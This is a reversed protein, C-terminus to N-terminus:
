RAPVKPAMQGSLKVILQELVLRARSGSSSTSKLALDADLLWGFIKKARQRTIQQLQRSTKELVFPKPAVGAERLADSLSIRRRQAEAIEVIRAAAAMRRLSGSMMALLAVPEEGALLLRDLELLAAAAKGDLAFEITVWATKARWGGVSQEVLERSITASTGNGAASKGTAAESKGGALLALKALEQDLRGLQPGVIELLMEGADSALRVQHQREARAALWKLAAGQDVEGFRNKPLNCNIALGIEAVKKFLKTNAPWSDVEIVLVSNSRPKECYDQLAQRHKSVFDDANEVVVLRRGGGFMSMTALEDFVERPETDDGDFVTFSLEGDEGSLVEARLRALSESKLLPEEGFLVCVAPVSPTKERALFEIAAVSDPM